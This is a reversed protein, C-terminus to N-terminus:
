TESLVLIRFVVGTQSVFVFSNVERSSGPGEQFRHSTCSAYFMVGSKAANAICKHFCGWLLLLMKLNEYRQNNDSLNLCLM